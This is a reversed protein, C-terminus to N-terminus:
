PRSGVAQRVRQAVGFVIGNWFFKRRSRRSAGFLQMDGCHALPEVSWRLLVGFFTKYLGFIRGNLEKRIAATIIEQKTRKWWEIM